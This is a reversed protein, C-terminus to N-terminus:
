NKSKYIKIYYNKTCIFKMSMDRRITLSARAIFYVKGGILLAVEGEKQNTHDPKDDQM